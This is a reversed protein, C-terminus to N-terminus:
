SNEIGPSDLEIRVENFVVNVSPRSRKLLLADERSLLPHQVFDVQELKPFLALEALGEPPLRTSNLTLERISSLDLRRMLEALATTDFASGLISFSSQVPLDRYREAEFLKIEECYIGQLAGENSLILNFLTGEPGEAARLRGDRFWALGGDESGASKPEGGAYWSRSPTGTEVGEEYASERLCFGDQDFLYALGDFPQQQYNWLDYDEEMTLFKQDVRQGDKPFPLLDNSPGSVSGDAIELLGEVVGQSDIQYAVGTFAEEGILYRDERAALQSLRIRLEKPGPATGQETQETM